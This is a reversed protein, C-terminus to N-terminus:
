RGDGKVATDAMEGGTGVIELYHRVLDVMVGFRQEQPRGYHDRSPAAHVDFGRARLALVMKEVDADNKGPGLDSPAIFVAM